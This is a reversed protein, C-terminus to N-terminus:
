QPPKEEKSSRLEIRTHSKENLEILNKVKDRYQEPVKDVGEYKHSERGDQVQVQSVKAKGDAITGTVTIILSGEQHRTTFRDDFRFNTTIVTQGGRAGGAIGGQGFGNMNPFAQGQGIQPFGQPPLGGLGGGGFGAGNGPAFGPAIGGGGFGAGNGPAFGQGFGGPGPFGNQAPVAAREPLTIGKVTEKKGKRLVMADVATEAKIDNVFRVFKALDNAVPKGNFELLIDHIKLGAKAAASDKQVNTIVLGEGRPLDLQSVLTDDPKQIRVGLRGNQELNFGNLFGNNFQFQGGQQLRKLQDEQMARMQEQMQQQLERIREPNFGRPANGADDDDPDFAKQIAKKKAAEDKKQGKAPPDDDAAPASRADGVPLTAARARLSLGSILVAVALLGAAAALSWCRPCRKELPEPNQLLMTVRRFLDSSNGMVGTAGLPVVPMKTLGLLFQAYDEPHAALQAAAADALFEQCLRVQRRLWWFWPVYFYFAQALGFLLCAGADCRQVHTLEHALVWQLTQRAEPACLSAPILVTPRFLGCSVPLRLRNSVLMRVPRQQHLAMDLFLRHVESPPSTATRILRWLGLHGLIWRVLLFTVLTGYGIGIWSAVSTAATSSSSSLSEEPPAAAEHPSSVLETSVAPLFDNGANPLLHPETVPLFLFPPTIDPNDLASLDSERAPATTAVERASGIPAVTAQEGKANERTLVPVVLWAPGVSLVGAALAALVGVEGLRQRRVPQRCRRMLGWAVVLILVGGCASHLMWSNLAAWTL